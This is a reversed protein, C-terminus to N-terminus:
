FSVKFIASNTANTATINGGNKEIISKSLYLGIGSSGNTSIFPQFIDDIVEVDIGGGNDTISFECDGVEIDIQANAVQRKLFIERANNLLAFIVQSVENINAAIGITEHSNVNVKINDFFLTAGIMSLVNNIAETLFFIQRADSPKYFNQFTEITNSMFAILKETKNFAEIYESEDIDIGQAIKLTVLTNIAGLESLPQKWQHSIHMLLEGLAAQKSQQYLLNEKVRNKEIERTVQNKLSLQLNYLELHTKVRSKLELPNFPKTIYDVAGLEFGRNIDGFSNKASLFIIPIASHKISKKLISCVEFGDLSPMMVDLLILDIQEREVIELASKGDIATVVDYMKLHSVLVDLNLENDDVVLITNGM